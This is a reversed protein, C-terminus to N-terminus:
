IFWPCKGLHVWVSIWPRFQSWLVTSTQIRNPLISNKIGKPTKKSSNRQIRSHTMTTEHLGQYIVFGISWVLFCLSVIIFNSGKKGYILCFSIFKICFNGISESFSIGSFIIGHCTKHRWKANSCQFTKWLTKM